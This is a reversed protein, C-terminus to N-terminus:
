SEEASFIIRSARLTEMEAAQFAMPAYVLDALDFKFEWYSGDAYPSKPGLPGITVSTVTYSSGINMGSPEYTVSNSGYEVKRAGLQSQLGERFHLGKLMTGKVSGTRSILLCSFSCSCGQPQLNLKLDTELLSKTQTVGQKLDEMLETPDVGGQSGSGHSMTLFCGSKESQGCVIVFSGRALQLFPSKQHGLLVTAILGLRHRDKPGLTSLSPSSKNQSLRVTFGRKTLLSPLTRLDVALTSLRPKIVYGAKIVQEPM